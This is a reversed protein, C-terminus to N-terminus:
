NAGCRRCPPADLLIGITKHALSNSRPGESFSYRLPVNKSISTETHPRARRSASRNDGTKACARRLCTQTCRKPASTFALRSSPRRGASTNTRVSMLKASKKMVVADDTSARHMRAITDLLVSRAVFVVRASSALGLHFSLGCDPILHKFVPSFAQLVISGCVLSFKLCCAM